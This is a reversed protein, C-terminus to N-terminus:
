EDVLIISLFLTSLEYYQTIYVGVAHFILFLKTEFGKRKVNKSTKKEM